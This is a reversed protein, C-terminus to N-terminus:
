TRSYCKQCFHKNVRVNYQHILREINFKSINKADFSEINYIRNKGIEKFLKWIKEKDSYMKDIKYDSNKKDIEIEDYIENIKKINQERYKSKTVKGNADKVDSARGGKLEDILISEMADYFEILSDPEKYKHIKIDNINKFKTNKWYGKEYLMDFTLMGKDNRHLPITRNKGLFPLHATARKFDYVPAFPLIHQRLSTIHSKPIRKIQDLYEELKKELLREDKLREESLLGGTCLIKRIMWLLSENSIGDDVSYIGGGVELHDGPFWIEEFKICTCKKNKGSEENKRCEECKENENNVPIPDFFASKEHISLVQYVNKVCKSIDNDYLKYEIGKVITFSPFGHAGVTDWLGLFKIETPDPHSFESRFSVSEQSNSHLNPNGNRYLDFARNILEKSDYRVIGCNRIMRAVCRVTYAGRSFGFLWIEKRKNKNEKDNYQRVIHRYVSKIKDDIHCATMSDIVKLKEGVGKEYYHDEHLFAGQVIEHNKRHKRNREKLNELWEFDSIERTGDKEREREKCYKDYLLLIHLKYVNTEATPGSLTGDCLVVINVTEKNTM